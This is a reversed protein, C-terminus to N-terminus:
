CGGGVPRPPCERPPDSPPPLRRQRAVIVAPESSLGRKQVAVDTTEQQMVPAALALGAFFLVTSFKM